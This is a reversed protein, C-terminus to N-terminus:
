WGATSSRPPMWSAPWCLPFTSVHTIRHRDILRVADEPDFRPVVVNTGGAHMHALAM